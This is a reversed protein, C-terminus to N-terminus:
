RILARTYRALIKCGAKDNEFADRFTVSIARFAKLSRVAVDLDGGKIALFTVKNLLERAIDPCVEVFM